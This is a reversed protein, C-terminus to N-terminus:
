WVEIDSAYKKLECMHLVMYKLAYLEMSDAPLIRDCFQSLEDEAHFLISYCANALDKHGDQKYM